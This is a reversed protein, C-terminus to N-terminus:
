VRQVPADIVDSHVAVVQVRGDPEVGLAQIEFEDAFPTRRVDADVAAPEEVGTVVTEDLCVGSMTPWCVSSPTM